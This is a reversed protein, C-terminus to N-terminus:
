CYPELRFFFIFAWNNITEHLLFVNMRNTGVGIIGRLGGTGFELDSIFAEQKAEESMEKLENLLYNPMTPENVWLNYKEIISM